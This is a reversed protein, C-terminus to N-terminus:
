FQIHCCDVSNSINDSCFIRNWCLWQNSFYFNFKLSATEAYGYQNYSLTVKGAGSNGSNCSVSNVFYITGATTHSFGTPVASTFSVPMYKGFQTCDPIPLFPTPSGSITQSGTSYSQDGGNNQIDFINLDNFNQGQLGTFVIGRGSSGQNFLHKFSSNTPNFGAFGSSRYMQGNTSSQTIIDDFTSEIPNDFWVGWQTAGTIYIHKLRSWEIGGQYLAGVKIGYSCGGTIGLDEIGVAGILSATFLTGTAYPVSLDTSNYAFAPLGSSQCNIITGGTLNGGSGSVAYGAGSYSVGASLPLSNSGLNYTVPSLKVIGGGNAVAANYAVMIGAYTNATPYFERKYNGGISQTSVGFSRLTGQVDVKQGPTLTGVGVNGNAIVKFFSTGTEGVHFPDVTGNSVVTLNAHPTITNIGFTEM